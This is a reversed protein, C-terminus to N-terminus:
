FDVRDLTLGSLESLRLGSSYFLELMAKDRLALPDDDDLAVLQSAEDPSLANPLRKASKPPRLGACPDAEITREEALYHYFARWSSLMRALTRGSLGRGHLMALFRRLQAGNMRELAVAPSAGAALLALQETDRLYAKRTTGCRPASQRSSPTIRM